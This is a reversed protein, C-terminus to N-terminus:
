LLDSTEELSGAFKMLKQVPLVKVLPWCTWVPEQLPIPEHCVEFSEGSNPCNTRVLSVDTNWDHAVNGTGVVHDGRDDGVWGRSLIQWGVLGEVHCELHLVEDRAGECVGLLGVVGSRLGKGAALDDTVGVHRDLREPVVDGSLSGRVRGREGEELADVICSVSVATKRGNDGVTQRGADVAHTGHGRGTVVLGHQHRYTILSGSKPVPKSVQSKLDSLTTSLIVTGLKGDALATAGLIATGALSAASTVGVLITVGARCSSGGGTLIATAAALAAAGLVAIGALTASGAGAPIAVCTLCAAVLAAARGSLITPVDLSKM